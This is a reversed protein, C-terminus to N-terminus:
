YRSVAMRLTDCVFDCVHHNKAFASNKSLIPSKSADEVDAELAMLGEKRAKNLLDYMM